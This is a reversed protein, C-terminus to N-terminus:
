RSTGKTLRDITALLEPKNMKVQYDSVGADLGAQRAADNSLSTLAVIPLQQFREDARVRKTLGIGDLVPMEVDTLLLDFQSNSESLHEWGQQGDEFATVAHGEETLTKCIFNRFFPSDECVLIKLTRREEPTEGPERQEFWEPRAIRTMGYLDLIRTTRDNIISVGAVGPQGTADDSLNIDCDCIDNLHPTILGVEHGYVRFVIVFVADTPDVESVAVVEDINLLSLTGGRYPLVQRDGVVDISGVAVREIRSVVDMSVAFHDQDSCGLLVMRQLEARSGAERDEGLHSASSDAETHIQTQSVIGAADLIMAVQGDGLITCGALLPLGSLHRGLPKVVIEESDLVRDVALAFRSRGAELVVLQQDQDRAGSSRNADLGLADQLRVLPILQGRLRLVESNSVREIRKDNGGTQVLEVINAQPIAYRLDSQSVIMSPVIALTLPLTIRVTSGFGYNSEIEVSGGLKEINTRVVDMGVGRGSVSSIKEATSFGPAFILDVVDRDCMKAATEASIVGKEVAKARLRKPDIGAGDDVIEILVKGAQHFAKLHVSGEVPKGASARAPPSEIGHDCANRVLHTLPDAIAEVITKDTEVEAGEMTLVINKGLSASLDRAVRPFKTFVNGIPQMRTQMIAEQLETTVQDLGSVISDFGARDQKYDGLVRLLQNRSLVLEGALNMLRDLVRVNVRVSSESAALKGARAHADKSGSSKAKEGGADRAKALNTQADSLTREARNPVSEEAERNTQAAAALEARADESAKAAPKKQSARTSRPKRATTSKKTSKRATTKRTTTRTKSGSNKPEPEAEAEDANAPGADPQSVNSDSLLADLKECLERNDTENSTDVEEILRRLRDAAKLMVDVKYPDPILQHDRVKGLVNELRHSVENIQTLGLFGAAGKVSHIARFVTNVLDDQINEGLAEIQLLQMEVDALHDRAEEVFEHLLETDLM